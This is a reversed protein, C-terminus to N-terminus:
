DDAVRDSDLLDTETVQLDPDMVLRLEDGDLEVTIHIRDNKVATTYHNLIYFIIEDLSTTTIDIGHDYYFWIVPALNVTHLHVPLLETFRCTECRYTVWIQFPTRCAECSLGTGVDHENCISLSTRIIGSCERCIGRVVCAMRTQCWRLGTEVIENPTRNRLGAPPFRFNALMGTAFARSFIGDCENCRIRLNDDKYTAEVMSNCHPCRFGPEFRDLVQEGNIVGALVARVVHKGKEQLIYSGDDRRIFQDTLKRLHYNFKGKDDVGVRERLESYPLPDDHSWTSETKSAEWLVHLIRLRTENGLVAFAEDPPVGRSEIVDDVISNSM